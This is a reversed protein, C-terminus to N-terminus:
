LVFPTTVDFVRRDQQCRTSPVNVAKLHPSPPLSDDVPVGTGVCVSVYKGTDELQSTSSGRDVLQPPRPEFVKKIPYATKQQEEHGSSSANTLFPLASYDRRFLIPSSQLTTSPTSKVAEKKERILQHGNHPYLNIIQAARCEALTEITASLREDDNQAAGDWFMRIDDDPTLSQVRVHPLLSMLTRMISGLDTAEAGDNDPHKIFAMLVDGEKVHLAFHVLFLLQRDSSGKRVNQLYMHTIHRVPTVRRLTEDVANCLILYDPTVVAVADELQHADVHVAVRRACLATQIGYQSLTRPVNVHVPTTTTTLTTELVRADGNWGLGITTLLRLTDDNLRKWFDRISLKSDSNNSLAHCTQEEQQQDKDQIKDQQQHEPQTTTKDDVGGAAESSLAPDDDSTPVCNSM